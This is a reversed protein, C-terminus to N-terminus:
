AKIEIQKKTEVLFERVYLARRVIVSKSKSTEMDLTRLLERARELKARELEARM